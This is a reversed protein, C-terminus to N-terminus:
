RNGSSDKTGIYAVFADHINSTASYRWDIIDMSASSEAKKQDFWAVLRLNPMAVSIDLANASDGGVNFLQVSLVNIYLRKLRHHTHTAQENAVQHCCSVLHM